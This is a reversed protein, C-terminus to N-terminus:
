EVSVVRNVLFQTKIDISKELKNKGNRIEFTYSGDELKDMNFRGLYRANGDLVEKHLTNNSADKIFLVLKDQRPNVIQVLFRLDDTGEQTVEIKCGRQIMFNAEDPSTNTTTRPAKEERTNVYAFTENQASAQLSIGLILALATLVRKPANVISHKM